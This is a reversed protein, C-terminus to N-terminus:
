LCLVVLCPYAGEREYVETYPLKFVKGLWIKVFEELVVDFERVDRAMEAHILAAWFSKVPLIALKVTLMPQELGQLSDWPRVDWYGQFFYDLGYHVVVDILFELPLM